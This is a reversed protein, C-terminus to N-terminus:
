EKVREMDREGRVLAQGIGDMGEKRPSWKKVAVSSSLPFSRARVIIFLAVM